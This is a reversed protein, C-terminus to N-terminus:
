KLAENLSGTRYGQLDLTIYKFGLKKLRTIIRDCFRQNLFRKIYKKDVEIRAVDGHCRVRVDRIRLSRIFDEAKEIRKLAAKSIEDGYPIRSALCPMPPLSWTKLRMKRSYKRIDDKFFGTEQLPSRVGIEKKARTGPRYDKKDDLNSADLVFRFGKKVAIEKLRTFLKKKCYYCRDAPNATFNKDKMEDTFILSHKIGLAKAFAKARNLESRTYTDSIATVALINDKPLSVSAAKLLFSSDVGGSFAIVVSEMGALRKKLEKLHNM